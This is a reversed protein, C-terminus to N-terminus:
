NIKNKIRMGFLFRLLNIRRIVLEYISFILVFSLTSLIIYKLIVSTNWNAIYFGILVIMTQHLIYFPLVAENAYKVVRNNFSLYKSGFGLIAVIWCWSVFPRLIGGLIYGFINNFLDTFSPIYWSTLLLISTIGGLLLAIIRYREIILRFQLDSAILYGLIFFILYTFPNWGGFDRRGISEPQLNVLLELLILPVALLFIAGSKKFFGSVRSILDHRIEDRFYIFFPLTILSFIFLFLLFWLHLGMWAFNGGFAYFGNFYHPYFDIFSGTFQSHSVREIYVQLPILVVFTGFLFPIVLRKFRKKIYQRSTRFGLAFYSSEGSLVFFFPMIWLVLFSAFVSMGLDLQNNKVHWDEYNFFRACHYFFVLLITLVRLWDIDHRRKPKNISTAQNELNM